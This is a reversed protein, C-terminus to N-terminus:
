GRRKRRCHTRWNEVWRREHFWRKLNDLEDINEEILWVAEFANHLRINNLFTKNGCCISRIITSTQIWRFLFEFISFYLHSFTCGEFSFTNSHQEFNWWSAILLLDYCFTPFNMRIEFKKIVSILADCLRLNSIFNNIPPELVRNKLTLHFHGWLYGFTYIWKLNSIQTKKDFFM